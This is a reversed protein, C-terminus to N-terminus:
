YREGKKRMSEEEGVGARSEPKEGKEEEIRRKKEKKESVSSGRGSIRSQV